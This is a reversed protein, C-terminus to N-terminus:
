ILERLRFNLKEKQKDLEEKLSIAKNYNEIQEKENLEECYTANNNLTSLIGKEFTGIYFDNSWYECYYTKDDYDGGDWCISVKLWLSYESGSLYLSQIKAIHGKEAVFPKIHQERDLVILKNIKELLTYDKKQIPKNLFPKLIETIRKIEITAIRRLENEKHIIRKVRKNEYEKYDINEKNM